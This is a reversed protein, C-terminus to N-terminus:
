HRTVTPKLEPRTVRRRAVLKSASTSVGASLTVSASKLGPSSATLTVTGSRDAEGVLAMCLGNFAHRSSARDPEHSSPDGNGVGAVTAPGSVTFTVLNMATPVVRGRADIVEVEVPVLDEADVLMQRRAPKLRLAVAQGTSEVRDSAVVAGRGTMRLESGPLSSYGYGNAVLTGPAFPVKWELHGWKPMKQRGLSKGNLILEVEDANSYVWVPIVHGNSGYWNWHPLIHVVPKDGWWAQYYYFNDKPFGCMDMIGFHSNICPWGYPTPEGKYDFGTWVFGGAMWPREAIPRWADEANNGWNVRPHQIDYAAVYGKEESNSYIGRTTVTSATESGFMFRDPFITRLRDYSGPAYNFGILDEVRSIGQGEQGGNMAATTPRTPDLELVANKMATFIRAGDPTAQVSFEENALSWMIVSPHNRDRLVMRKLESLDDAKTNRNSKPQETDGFHRTEDMVVMGLRDCADLLETAPPNHSCRYANSGMEKLKEIRWELIGDPMAIGVGAFDQHNCTGKLKVSKGNLFFGKDKDFRLTRIGFNTEVQDVVRPGVNLTTVLRYLHPTEISWLDAGNVPVSQDIDAHEGGVLRHSTRISAVLRGSPSYVRSFVQFSESREATNDVTTTLAIDAAPHSAGEAGHVTTKVFTGWPRVHLRDAINLWVHRYIGGGEYWWGESRRPDVRVAMVNKGGYIAFRSIEYRVPSYGSKWNGLKRGNLYVTSDRFIGDFDIWVSKGRNGSPLTFTKRYWAPMTPLSGHSTDATPDFKGEVVYDHPLHVRRWRSDDFGPEAEAPAEEPKPSELWIPAYLGGPGGTNEVLVLITNPQGAQWVEAVPIDFPEGYGRHTLLRKGNVFVTANDDVGEFHLTLNRPAEGTPAGFKGPELIARFWGFGYRQHFPDAGIKVPDWHLATLDDPVSAHDLDM